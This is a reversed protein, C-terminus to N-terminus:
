LELPDKITLYETKLGDHIHHRLFIMAKAKDQGSKANKDKITDGLGMSNLHLEADLLWSLYNDGSIELADYQLKMINSM